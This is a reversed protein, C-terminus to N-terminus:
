SADKHVPLIQPFFLHGMLFGFGFSIIPFEKSRSYLQWSITPEVGSKLVVYGDYVLAIVLVSWILARTIKILLDKM